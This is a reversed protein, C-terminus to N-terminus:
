VLKHLEKAITEILRDARKKEGKAILLIAAEPKNLLYALKFTAELM